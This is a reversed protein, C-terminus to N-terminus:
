LFLNNMLDVLFHQLNWDVGYNHRWLKDLDGLQNIQSVIFLNCDVHGDPLFPDFSVYNLLYFSHLNYFFHRNFNLYVLLFNSFYSIVYSLIYSGFYDLLDVRLHLYSGRNLILYDFHDAFCDDLLQIIRVSENLSLILDYFPYYLFYDHKGLDHLYDLIDM